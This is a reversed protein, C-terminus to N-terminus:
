LLSSSSGPTAHMSVPRDRNISLHRGTDSPELAPSSLRQGLVSHRYGYAFYVGFGVATWILLRVISSFPLGCILWTNFFIGLCPVFPVLPCMFRVSCPVVEMRWFLLVVGLMALGCACYVVVLVATNSTLNAATAVAVTLASFVCLLIVPMRYNGPSRYRAIIVSACVTSFALLTGISIMTTLVDIDLFTAILAAMVATVVTGVLPVQTRAHLRSFMPCLLGDKSMSRRSCIWHAMAMAPQPCAVLM